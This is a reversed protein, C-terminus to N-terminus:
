KESKTLQYHDFDIEQDLQGNLMKKKEKKKYLHRKLWQGFTSNM